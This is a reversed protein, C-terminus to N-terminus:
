ASTRRAALVQREREPDLGPPELDSRLPAPGGLASQWAWTDAVTDAVPRPALGAAHARTVDADHLAGLEHDPPLWVPLETWPELGAAAIEDPDLWTLTTGPVGSTALCARLLSGMTAHGRRSVVNFPGHHGALASDIMFGALDRADIFQLPQEAPGPCLVEGGRAMRSLWWPLRGVDEHPGLVLGARAILARDGFAETIALECGRKNEAYGGAGAGPSAAVAPHDEAVGRPPPPAYISGSSVYAYRAARAALVRAGAQASRPAGSWTDVVLDWDRAALAGLTAPDDRDGVLREVEPHAWGRRRNFTSVALGRRLSEEVLARGVFHSGGLVLVSDCAM